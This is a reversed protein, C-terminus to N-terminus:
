KLAVKLINFFERQILNWDGWFLYKYEVYLVDFMIDFGYFAIYLLERPYDFSHFRFQITALVQNYNNMVMM